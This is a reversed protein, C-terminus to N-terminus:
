YPFTMFKNFFLLIDRLTDPVNAITDSNENYPGWNFNELLFQSIYHLFISHSLSLYTADVMNAEM